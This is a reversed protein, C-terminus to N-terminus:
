FPRREAPERLLSARQRPCRDVSAVAWIFLEKCIQSNAQSCVAGRGMTLYHYMECSRESIWLPALSGYLRRYDNPSSRNRRTPM